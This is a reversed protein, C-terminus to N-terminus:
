PSPPINHPWWAILFALTAASVAVLPWFLWRPLRAAYAIYIGVMTFIFRPKTSGASSMACSLFVGASFLIIPPPARMAILLAIGIVAIWFMAILLADFVPHRATPVDTWTIIHWEHLGWDIHQRWGAREVKFWFLYDHYKHGFYAFYGLMGLPALVPAVLSRWERRTWIAQIAAVGLVPVLVIMPFHAATALLALLGALLWRRNLVTLLCTAALAVALPEPYLMGLTIAGPFVCYLLAARDATRRDRVRAALAWVAVASAAGVLVQTVVDGVLYNGATVYTVLKIRAPFLPFFASRPAATFPVGLGPRPVTVSPQGYGVRAIDRYFGSDGFWLWTTWPLHAHYVANSVHWAAVTLAWTGAFALLPFLWPLPLRDSVARAAGPPGTGAPATGPPSRGGHLGPAAIDTM